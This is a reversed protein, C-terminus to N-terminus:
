KTFKFTSLIQTQEPTLGNKLESVTDKNNTMLVLDYINNQYRVVIEYATVLGMNVGEYAPQGMFTMPQYDRSSLQKVQAKVFDDLPLNNHTDIVATIQFVKDINFTASVGMEGATQALIYKGPYKIEFGYHEDRYTKWDSTGEVPKAQDSPQQAQPNQVLSVQAQQKNCAVALLLISLSVFLLKRM